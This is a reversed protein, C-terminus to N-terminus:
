IPLCDTHDPPGIIYRAALTSYFDMHTVVEPIFHINGDRDVEKLKDYRGATRLWARVAM